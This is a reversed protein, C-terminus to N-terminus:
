NNSKTLFGVLMKLEELSADRKLENARYSIVQINGPVYGLKPIIRDISPSRPNFGSNGVKLRFGFVPCRVPIEFDDPSLNFPVGQKKARQRASYVLVKKLNKIRNGRQWERIEEVHARYYLKNRTDVKERNKKYYRKQYERVANSNKRYRERDSRRIKERNAERYKKAAALIKERDKLYRERNYEKRRVISKHM